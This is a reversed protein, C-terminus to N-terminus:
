LVADRLSSLQLFPTRPVRRRLVMGANESGCGNEVASGEQDASKKM